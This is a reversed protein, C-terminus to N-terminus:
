PTSCNPARVLSVFQELECSDGGCAPIFVPSNNYSVKVLYYNDRSYLAFNVNSAYPPSKELPAGLFSLVSAITSDHASLLVYKLKSPQKSGITLYNAIRRM